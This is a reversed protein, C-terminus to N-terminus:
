DPLTVGSGGMEKPMDKFKTKGDRIPLVTEQYHVHVGPEFSLSPLMAAYIDVLGMATVVGLGSEAARELFRHAHRRTFPAGASVDTPHINLSRV